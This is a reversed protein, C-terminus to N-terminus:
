VLHRRDFLFSANQNHIGDVQVFLEKARRIFLDQQQRDLYERWLQRANEIRSEPLVIKPNSPKPWAPYSTQKGKIDIINDGYLMIDGLPKARYKYEPINMLGLADRM